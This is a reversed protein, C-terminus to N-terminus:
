YSTETFCSPWDSYSHAVAIKNSELELVFLSDVISNLSVVLYGDMLEWEEFLASGKGTRALSSQVVIETEEL